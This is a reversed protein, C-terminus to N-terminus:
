PCSSTRMKKATSSKTLNQAQMESDIQCAIVCKVVVATAEDLVAEESLFDDFNSGINKAKM